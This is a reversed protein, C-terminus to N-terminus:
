KLVIPNSATGRPPTNGGVSPQVKPVLKPSTGGEPIGLTIGQGQGKAATQADLTRIDQELMAQYAERSTQDMPQGTMPDIGSTLAGQLNGVRTAPPLSSFKVAWSMAAKKDYKGADIRMQEVDKQNKGQAYIKDMEQKQKERESIITPLFARYQMGQTRIKPDSSIMMNSVDATFQKLEDESLSLAAKRQDASLNSAQSASARESALRNTTNLYGQGENSLVKGQNTLVREQIRNPNDQETFQNELSAKRTAEQQQQIAQQRYQDALGQNEYGKMYSLPNWDGYLSNLSEQTPTNFEAM